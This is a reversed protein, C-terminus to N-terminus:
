IVFCTTLRPFDEDHRVIWCSRIRLTGRLGPAELDVQYRQGHADRSTPMADTHRVQELLLARLRPADQARLGLAALFVRAKHRGRPHSPNLCYDRLKVLDVVAKHANPLRM